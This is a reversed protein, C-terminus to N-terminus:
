VMYNVYNKFTNTTMKKVQLRKVGEHLNEIDIFGELHPNNMIVYLPRAKFVNWLQKVKKTSSLRKFKKLDNEDLSRYYGMIAPALIENKYYEINNNKELDIPKLKGKWHLTPTMIANMLEELANDLCPAGGLNIYYQDLVKQIFETKTNETQFSSLKDYFVMVATKLTAVFEHLYVQIKKLRNPNSKIGRLGSNRLHCLGITKTILNQIEFISIGNRTVKEWNKGYTNQILNEHRILRRLLNVIFEFRGDAELLLIFNDVKRKRTANNNINNNTQRYSNNVKQPLIKFINNKDQIDKCKTDKTKYSKIGVRLGYKNLNEKSYGNKSKGSKCKERNFNKFHEKLSEIELEIYQKLLNQEILVDLIPKSIGIARGYRILDRKTFQRTSNFVDLKKVM